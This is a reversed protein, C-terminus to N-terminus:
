KLFPFVLKENESYYINGKNIVKYGLDISGPVKQGRAVMAAYKVGLYAMKFPNQIVTAQIVGNEIFSVIEETCDFGIIKVKRALGLEDIATAAGVASAENLAIIGDINKNDYIIKRAINEAAKEDSLCYEKAVVKVDPHSSLANFVGMEREEESKADKVFGIIAIKSNEGVLKIMGEGAANGADVNNTSIVSNVKHTNVGSDVIIVPIKSEHAKDVVDSLANYDSAALVIADVKREIADEVMKIQQESQDEYDPATINLNVNFEKAAENAGMQITNWYSGNRSKLIFDINKRNETDEKTGSSYCGILTIFCIVLFCIMLKKIRIM